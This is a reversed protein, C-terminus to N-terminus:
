KRFNSTVNEQQQTALYSLIHTTGFEVSLYASFSVDKQPTYILIRCQVHYWLKVVTPVVAGDLSKPYHAPSTCHCLSLFLSLSLSLSVSVSSSSYNSNNLFGFLYVSEYVSLFISFCFSLYIAPWHFVTSFSLCPSLMVMISAGLIFIVCGCPFPPALQLGSPEM